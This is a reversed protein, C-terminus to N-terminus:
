IVTVLENCFYTLWKVGAGVHTIEDREIIELMEASRMDGMKIMKERLQFFLFM